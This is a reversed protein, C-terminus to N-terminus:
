PAEAGRPAPTGGASHTGHTLGCTSALDDEVDAAPPVGAPCAPLIGADRQPGSARRQRVYNMVPALWFKGFVGLTMLGFGAWVAWLGQASVVSLVTYAHNDKDWDMQLLHRGRHFLPHNVAITAQKVVAGGELIDVDSYFGKVPPEVFFLHITGADGDAPPHNMPLGSLPKGRFDGVTSRFQGVRLNMPELLGPLSFELDMAPFDGDPDAVYETDRPEVIYAAGRDERTFQSTVALRRASGDSYELLALLAFDSSDALTPPPRHTDGNVAALFHAGEVDIHSRLVTVRVAQWALLPNAIGYNTDPPLVFSAQRGSQAPIRIDVDSTVIRLDAPLDDPTTLRTRPLFNRPTITLRCEPLDLPQHLRWDLKRNELVLTENGSADRHLTPVAAHLAWQSYYDMRFKRLRVDFPLTAIPQGSRPDLLRNETEGERVIMVGKPVRGGDLWSALAPHQQVWLNALRHGRPSSWLSGGLILLAGLHMSLMAPRRWLRPTFLLSAAFCCTKMKM